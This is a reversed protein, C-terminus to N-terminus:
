CSFLTKQTVYPYPHISVYPYICIYFSCGPTALSWYCIDLFMCTEKRGPTRPYYSTGLVTLYILVSLCLPHLTSPPRRSILIHQWDKLEGQFLILSSWSCWVKFVKSNVKSHVKSNNLNSHMIQILIYKWYMQRNLYIFLRNMWEVWKREKKLKSCGKKGGWESVYVCVHM